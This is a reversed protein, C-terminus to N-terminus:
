GLIPILTPTPTIYGIPHADNVENGGHQVRSHVSVVVGTNTLWSFLPM